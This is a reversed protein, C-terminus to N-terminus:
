AVLRHNSVQCAKHLVSQKQDNLLFLNAGAERLDQFIGLHGYTAALHLPTCEQLYDDCNGGQIKM